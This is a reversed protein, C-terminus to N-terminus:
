RGRGRGRSPGGPPAMGLGHNLPKVAPSLRVARAMQTENAPDPVPFRSPALGTDRGLERALARHRERRRSREVAALRESLAEGCGVEIPNAELWDM